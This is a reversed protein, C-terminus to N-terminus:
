CRGQGALNDKIRGGKWSTPLLWTLLLGHACKWPSGQVQTWTCPALCPADGQMRPARTVQKKHMHVM